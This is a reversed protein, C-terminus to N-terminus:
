KIIGINGILNEYVNKLAEGNLETDFMMKASDMGAQATSNVLKM